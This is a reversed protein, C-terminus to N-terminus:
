RPCVRRFCVAHSCGGGQALPCVGGRARDAASIVAPIILPRGRPRRRHAEVELPTSIHSYPALISSFSKLFYWTQSLFNWDKKLITENRQRDERPASVAGKEIM